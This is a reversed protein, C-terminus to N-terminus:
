KKLIEMLNTGSKQVEAFLVKEQVFLTEIKVMYIIQTELTTHTNPTDSQSWNVFDKM